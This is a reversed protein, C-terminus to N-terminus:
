NTFRVVTSVGLMFLLVPAIQGQLKILTNMQFTHGSRCASSSSRFACNGFRKTLQLLSSCILGVTLLTYRSRIVFSDYKCVHVSLTSLQGSCSLEHLYLENHHCDINTKHPFCRSATAQPDQTGKNKAPSLMQRLRMLKVIDVENQSESWEMLLRLVNIAGNIPLHLLYRHRSYRETLIIEVGHSVATLRDM